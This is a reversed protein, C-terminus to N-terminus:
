VTLDVDSQLQMGYRFVEALALIVVGLLFVSVNWGGESRLGFGPVKSSFMVATEIGFLAAGRAFEFAMVFLGIARIRDINAHDFPEGAVVTAAIRRLLMVIVLAPGLSSLVAFLFLASHLASADAPFEAMGAISGIWGEGLVENAVETPEAGQELRVPVELMITGDGVWSQILAGCATVAGVIILALSLDLFRKMVYPAKGM